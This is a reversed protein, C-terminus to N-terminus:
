LKAYQPLQVRLISKQSIPHTFLTKQIAKNFESILVYIGRTMLKGSNIM